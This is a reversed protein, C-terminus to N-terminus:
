SWDPDLHSELYDENLEVGLGPRSPLELYGQNINIPETIMMNLTPLSSHNMELKFFNPVTMMTHAGALINIPGSADHPSVPVYFTEALTSIKYLESIGGTWLIDPMLYEALNEKLIPLFDWRTYLREGVCIPVNVSEKVQKLAENSNPQVPEEFWGINYPELMKAIKIATPVNFNGHCDILIEIEPGVSERIAAVTDQGLTAAKPSIMGQIYRRHHQKMEPQFPDLKITKFGKSVLERAQNAAYSPDGPQVHTYMEIQDRVPGGGLIEYIPKNAIKGKIDWLAIDIGSMVTTVFGGFGGGGTFRRFLKHWILDVHEPNEGILTERFDEKVTSNKLFNLINGVIISGGGGSSTAEGIGSIGEDTDIRLFVYSRSNVNPRTVWIKLDVIKM